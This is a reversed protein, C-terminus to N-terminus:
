KSSLLHKPDSATHRSFPAIHPGQAPRRPQSTVHTVALGYRKIKDYLTRRDIGLIRAAEGRHGRTVQLVKAIYHREQEELTSFLPRVEAGGAAQISPPLHSSMIDPGEALLVAREIASRLERVNGPYDYVLLREMVEPTVREVKKFHTVAFQRLFHTVLPPIDERRDRLPPLMVSMQNLRYFLDHRLGGTEVLHALNKTTAAIVRVDVPTERTSGVPRVRQHELAHLLKAQTSLSLEAIEDLFLTGKRAVEFLGHKARVREGTSDREQGFLESELLEESLVACNVSVFPRERRASREHLARALLDKGTGTEGLLLVNCDSAAIKEVTRYLEQMSESGGVMQGFGRSMAIGTTESNSLIQSIVAMLEDPLFPKTIFQEAGAKVAEVARGITGYGSIVLSRIRIKRRQAERILEIGDLDPLQLDTLLLDFPETSLLKLATDADPAAEVEFGYEALIRSACVRVVEDDDVVLIRKRPNPVTKKPRM